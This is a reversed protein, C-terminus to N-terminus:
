IEGRKAQIERWNKGERERQIRVIFTQNRRTSKTQKQNMKRPSPNAPFWEFQCFHRSKKREKEGEKRAIYRHLAFKLNKGRQKPRRDSSIENM